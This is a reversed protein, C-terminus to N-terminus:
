HFYFFATNISISSLIVLLVIYITFSSCVKEYNYLMNNGNIDESCKKILESILQKRYKCDKYDLYQGIGCSKDCECECNSPNGIFGNDCKGKDILKKCECQCKDNNQRQRDNCVSADLRCKCKCIEHWEIDRTENHKSM